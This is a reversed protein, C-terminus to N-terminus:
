DEEYCYLKGDQYMFYLPDKNKKKFLWVGNDDVMIECYKRHITTKVLVNDDKDTITFYTDDDDKCISYVYNEDTAVAIVRMSPYDNNVYVVVENYPHTHVYTWYGHWYMDYVIWSHWVHHHMHIHRHHIPHYVPPAPHMGHPVPHHPRYGPGHHAPAHGPHQPGHHPTAVPQRHDGPRGYSGNEHSRPTNRASPTSSVTGRTSRPESRRNVNTNVSPRYTATSRSPTVSSRSASVSSRSPSASSRTPASTRVSTSTRSPVGGPRSGGNRQAMCGSGILTLAILFVIKRMFNYNVKNNRVM